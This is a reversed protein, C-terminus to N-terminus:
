QADQKDRRVLRLANGVVLLSSLSMGIAALWPPVFGMAAAPIATLNYGVAWILNQRIIKLMRKSLVIGRALVNLDNSMLLLDASAAAASAGSGMAISAQAGALVPADNVGDGVMVVVEGQDQWRQVQALKDSPTQSAFWDDVGIQNALSAVAAERDGSLLVVKGGEARLQRVLEAAGPRLTDTLAFAALVQQQNALLVLTGGGTEMNDLEALDVSHGLRDAIFAPAGLLLTQGNVQGSLGGGPENRVESAVVGDREPRKERYRRFAEAIPHESFAELASALEIAQSSDLGEGMVRLDSVSLEGKTLTGTKDFVFLTARALTEIGGGRTALLGLSVMRSSAATIATPTAMSLACPCSVVLVAVTIPLWAVADQQYWYIGTVTALLLVGAVFWAAIRDALQAVKPKESQARELLRLIESVVTDAGTKDIELTLPNDLNISGGITRAGQTKSVPTSEGTLLSENVSSYGSVVLGDAPVTEGPRVLVRDGVCLEAVPIVEIGDGNLRNAMAPLLHVMRESSESAKQRGVLEMYRATLLFLVFMVASDYYVHGVEALTAYISSLFAIGIGLSVPVDMGAQKHTLDRWANRFFSQGSFLVVPATFMLSLWNFLHRFDEDMGWWDGTYGAVALIMVQMGLAAAIGIQRLQQRREREIVQQQRSPDYPHAQYGIGEIALLIDSLKIRSEDWRVRARQTAYNVDVTEVGPLAAIHQENLWVCAACTIGELILSAERVNGEEIRVFTKQVEPHDYVSVKLLEEPVLERGTPALDTRHKYFDTLGGDVIAQAVAQCGHCCM